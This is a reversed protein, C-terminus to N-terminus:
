GGLGEMFRILLARLEVFKSFQINAPSDNVDHYHPPGGLTYIFFGPVGNLLFFFHDSNPANVRARVKPVAKLEENLISLLEFQQLFDKGGVAMIGEDGNGMLDLNLIFKIQSLPVVPDHEVYFRSGNLGTEEGGFAIFLLSYKLPHKQFYSAMSLLIAIGSANDNAGPFLADGLMGLHDYHASIVLVSDPHLTGRILGLVNQTQITSLSADVQLFAKKPVHSIRDELLEVIPVQLHEPSYAATLKKKLIIFGAPQFARIADIRGLMQKRNGYKDQQDAQMKEPWGERVLVIKGKVGKKDRLGHGMDKIKYEGKGRGSLRHAIFDTGPSLPSDEGLVLAADTILNIQIPVKQLYGWSEKADQAEFILPKLGIEKFRGGIYNAAKLHGEHVYGRGAFTYSCLSDLEQRAQKLIDTPSLEQTYVHLSLLSLLTLLSIRM